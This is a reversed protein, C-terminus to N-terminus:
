TLRRTSLFRREVFRWSALGFACALPVSLALLLTASAPALLMITQQVPYGYLYTGYSIDNGWFSFSPVNKLHALALVLLPLLASELFPYVSFALAALLTCAVGALVKWGGLWRQLGFAGALSGALYFVGLDIASKWTFATLPLSGPVTLVNADIAIRLAATLIFLGTLMYRLILPRRKLLFCSGTFAYCLLEYGITWLSGNVIHAHPLNDFVGPLAYPVQGLIVTLPIALYQWTGPARFYDARDLGTALPGLVFGTLVVLVVLAPMVRRLRKSIFAVIDPSRQLSQFVLFGSIVFFGRVGIWSFALQQHTIRQLVDGATSGSLVHAHTALVFVAFLLRLADFNNNRM